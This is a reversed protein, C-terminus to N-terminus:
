NFFVWVKVENSHLSFNNQCYDNKNFIFERM